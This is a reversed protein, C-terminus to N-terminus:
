QNEKLIKGELVSRPSFASFSHKEFFTHPRGFCGGPMTTVNTKSPRCGQRGCAQQLSHSRPAERCQSSPVRQFQFPCGRQASLRSVFLRDLGARRLCAKDNKQLSTPKARDAARDAVRRSCRTVEHHRAANHLLCANFSSHVDASHWSDRFLSDILGQM